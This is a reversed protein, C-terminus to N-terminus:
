GFLGLVVQVLSTVTSVISAARYLPNAEIREVIEAGAKGQRLDDFVQMALDADPATLKAQLAAVVTDRDARKIASTLDGIALLNTVTAGHGNAAMAVDVDSVVLNQFSNGIGADEIGVEVGSIQIGIFRNGSAGPGIVIGRSGAPRKM